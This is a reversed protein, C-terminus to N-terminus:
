AKPLGALLGAQALEIVGAAQERTVGDFDSLFQDVTYGSELYDFLNKIPVRTGAFCPAGSLREPNIWIMGFLPHDRQILDGKLAEDSLPRAPRASPTVISSM